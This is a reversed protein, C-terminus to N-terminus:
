RSTYQPQHLLERHVDEPLHLLVSSLGERETLDPIGRGVTATKTGEAAHTSDVGVIVAPVPKMPQSSAM